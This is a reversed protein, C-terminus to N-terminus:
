RGMGVGLEWKRESGWGKGEWGGGGGGFRGERRVM